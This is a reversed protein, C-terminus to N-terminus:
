RRGPHARLWAQFVEVNALHEQATVAFRTEGTDPNVTVFYSWRGPTPSVAAKMAALGPSCVPGPPLGPWRYTNYRSPSNRQADSTTIGSGNTAYNVTADSQLRRDGTSGALRNAFVRAVRGMDAVSGAEVEVISALTLLEHQRAEPIGAERVAAQGREVMAALIQTATDGPQVDYTAPFLYGEANGRASAPLGLAESDKAAKTFDARPIGTGKALLDLIQVLRKGEPITVRSLLRAQPDLLTEIAAAAAMRSRLKYSGPQISAAAPNDEYASVFAKATKVVGADKLIGGIAVGSAREPIKVVISGSGSGTFDDPETISAIVPRIGVWAGYV